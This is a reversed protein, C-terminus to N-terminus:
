PLFFFRSLIHFLFLSFELTRCYKEEDSNKTKTEIVVVVVVVAVVFALYFVSPWLLVTLITM